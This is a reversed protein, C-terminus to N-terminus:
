AKRQGWNWLSRMFPNMTPVLGAVVSVKQQGTCANDFDAFRVGPLTLGRAPRCRQVGLFSALRAQEVEVPSSQDKPVSRQYAADKM